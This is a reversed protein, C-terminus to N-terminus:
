PVNLARFLKVEKAIKSAVRRIRLEEEKEQRVQRSEVDHRGRVVIHAFRKSQKMKWRREKEMDKALWAMEELLFDWHAKPGRAPEPAKPMPREVRYMTRIEQVEKLVQDEDLIREGLTCLAEVDRSRRTYASAADADTEM